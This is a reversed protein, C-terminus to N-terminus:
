AAVERNKLIFYGAVSFPIAYGLAMLVQDRIQSWTVAFGDAVTNSVDLAAFNPVVYVLRSMVPMVIADLTKASIVALTPTLESQLNDHTLLRILSEFPGGGLPSESLAFQQLFAFAIQGGVFFAITTLLAVPWSLFSGAWVGIATLVMAQLWIGFLGKAFNIDFRGADALIYLDSEAMGIYQTPTVCQVEIRLNGQSGALIAAPLPTKNTYYEHIPIVTKYEENTRPNIAKISALVPAGIVGKTTRYINFTMELQLPPSHLAAADARLREAKTADGATEAAQAQVELDKDRTQLRQLEDNIRQLEARIQAMRSDLRNAESTPLNAEKRRAEAQALETSLVTYRDLREEITGAKLLWNVPIRRDLIQVRRNPFKERLKVDIPDPIMGFQWIAMGATAGEIHSRVELEQGVDIGKIQPTGRSDLFTLSGKVPVRAKMRTRIQDAEERLLKARDKRNEQAAKDAEAVTEDIAGKITRYLYALSVSGFIVVLITVIAMYGLMRGWILELRRVPKSVVTYITQYQIDTPLSIPTLLAVMVTLLLSILLALTGVYIRGLEAPRPPQLFWDTFALIVLFVTIVVGLAWMRRNAEVFSHWAIAYLRRGRVAIAERALLTAVWALTVFGMYTAGLRAGEILGGQATGGFGGFRAALLGVLLGVGLALHLGALVIQDTTRGTRRINSWLAREILVFILFGCALGLLQSVSFGAIPVLKLRNTQALVQLLTAAVGLGIAVLIAILTSQRVPPAMGRQRASNLVWSGVWGVLCFLGVVKLWTLPPGWVGNVTVSVEGFVYLWELFAALWAPLGPPTASPQAQAFLPFSFPVFSM